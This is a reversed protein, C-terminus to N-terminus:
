NFPEFKIRTFQVPGPPVSFVMNGDPDFIDVRDTGSLQDGTGNLTVVGRAKLTGLYAGTGIDYLIGVATFAFQGGGLYQWVGHTPSLVGLEPLISVEGQVSGFLLGDSTFSNVLRNGEGSTGLWSGVIATKKEATSVQSATQMEAVPVSEAAQDPVTPAPNSVSNGRISTRRAASQAQTVTSSIAIVGTILLTWFIRKILM